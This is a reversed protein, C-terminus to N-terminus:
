EDEGEPANGLWLGLGLLVVIQGIYIELSRRGGFRLTPQLFAPPQRKLDARRFRLLLGSVAILPVAMVWADMVGFEYSILENVGYVATAVAGLARRELWARSAASDPGSLLARRHLLGTLAILWGTTGYELLQDAWPILAILFAALVWLALRSQAMAAEVMPLGWRLMAFSILINATVASTDGGEWILDLGTLAAGAVLWFRPVARGGAFGILFFFIPAGARGIARLWQEEPFIFHGLHDITILILAAAKWLDTTTVPGDTRRPAAAEASASM